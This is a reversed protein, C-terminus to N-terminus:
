ENIDKMIKLLEKLKNLEEGYGTWNGDRQNEEAKQFYMYAKAAYEKLKAEPTEEASVTETFYKGQIFIKEIATELNEEMIIKDEFSVIVRKLEPM